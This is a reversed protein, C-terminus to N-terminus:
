TFYGNNNNSKLSVQNKEVTTGRGDTGHPCVSLFSSSSIRKECNKSRKKVSKPKVKSIVNGCDAKSFSSEEIAMIKTSM